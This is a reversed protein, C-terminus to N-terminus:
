VNVAEKEHAARGISPPLLWFILNTWVRSWLIPILSRRKLEGEIGEGGQWVYWVRLWSGPDFAFPWLIPGGWWVWLRGCSKSRPVPILIWVLARSAVVPRHKM